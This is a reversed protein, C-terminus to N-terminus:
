VMKSLDANAAHSDHSIRVGNSHGNSKFAGNACMSSSVGHHKERLYRDVFLKTFLGGYALYLGASIYLIPAQIACDSTPSMYSVAMYMNIVTGWAFQAIQLSTIFPAARMVAARVGSISTLAFYTYMIAHVTYNMAGYWLAAPTEYVWAAWAFIIVSAHHFWHLMILKRKRLIILVTDVLELLKSWTFLAAWFAPRGYGALEYVDHCVTYYFGHTTLQRFLHPVCVMAGCISFVAVALNWIRSTSRLNYAPRHAMYRPLWWVMALYAVVVCVPLALHSAFYRQADHGDFGHGDFRDQYSEM